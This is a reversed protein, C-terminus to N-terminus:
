KNGCTLSHHCRSNCKMGAKYCACRKNACQNKSIKCNCKKFGQGGFLSTSSVAERITIFTNEPIPETMEAGSESFQSRPFWNKLTGSRTGIRYVGNRMDTIKGLINPCDLPGRDVKPISLIVSSGIAVDKFKKASYEVMKEAARKQGEYSRLRQNATIREQTCLLCVLSKSSAPEKESEGCVPHVYNKCIYCKVNSETEYSCVSCIRIEKPPKDLLRIIESAFDRSGQSGTPADLFKLLRTLVM